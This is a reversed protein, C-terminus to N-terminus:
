TAALALEAAEDESTAAARPRAPSDGRGSLAFPSELYAERETMEELKAWMARYEPRPDIRRKCFGEFQMALRLGELVFRPGHKQAFYLFGRQAELVLDPSPTTSGHGVHIVREPLVELHFGARRARLCWDYEENYLFFNEDLAGVQRLVDRRTMACAFSVIPVRSPTRIAKWNPSYIVGFAGFVKQRTGDENLLAPQAAALQPDNALRSRMAELAERTLFLDSNLLLVYPASTQEIGRNVAHGFGHNKCSVARAWPFERQVMELSGDSSCGDVVVVETEIRPGDELVRWLTRLTRELLRRGNYSPVVVAIEPARHPTAKREVPTMPERTPAADLARELVHPRSPGSRRRRTTRKLRPQDM